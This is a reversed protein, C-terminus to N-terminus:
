PATRQASSAPKSLPASHDNNQGPMPMASSEQARTMNTNTRGSAGPESAKTTAPAVGADAPPVSTTTPSDSQTGPFTQASSSAATDPAPPRTADPTKQCGILGAALLCVAAAARPTLM